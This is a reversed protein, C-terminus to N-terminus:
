KTVKQSYSVLPVLLKIPLYGKFLDGDQWTQDAYPICCHIYLPELKDLPRETVRWWLTMHIQAPLENHYTVVRYLTTAM